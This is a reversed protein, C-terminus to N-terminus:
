NFLGAFPSFGTQQLMQLLALQYAQEGTDDYPSGAPNAGYQHDEDNSEEEDSSDEFFDPYHALRQAESANHLVDIKCQKDECFRSNPRRKGCCGLCLTSVKGVGYDLDTDSETDSCDSEDSETDTSDSETDTSSPADDLSFAFNLHVKPPEVVTAKILQAPPELIPTIEEFVLSAISEASDLVILSDVLTAAHHFSSMQKDSQTKSTVEPLNNKGKRLKAAAKRNREIIRGKAGM